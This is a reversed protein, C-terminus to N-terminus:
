LLKWIVTTNLLLFKSDICQKDIHKWEMSLFLSANKDMRMMIIKFLQWCLAMMAMKNLTNYNSKANFSTWSNISGYGQGNIWLVISKVVFM